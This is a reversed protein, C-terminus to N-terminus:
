WLGAAEVPGAAARAAAVADTLPVEEGFALLLVHEPREALRQIVHLGDLGAVAAMGFRGELSAEMRRVPAPCMVEVVAAALVEDAATGQGGQGHMALMMGSDLDVLGASTCGEITEVCAKLEDDLTM